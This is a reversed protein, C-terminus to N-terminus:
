FDRTASTFSAVPCRPSTRASSGRTLGSSRAALLDVEVPQDFFSRAAADGGKEGFVRERKASGLPLGEAREAPRGDDGRTAAKQGQM